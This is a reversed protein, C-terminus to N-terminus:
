APVAAATAMAGRARLPAGSFAFIGPPESVLVPGSWQQTFPTPSTSYGAGSPGLVRALNPHSDVGEM